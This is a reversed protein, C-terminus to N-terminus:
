AHPTSVAKNEVQKIAENVAGRLVSVPIWSYWEKHIKEVSVGETILRLVHAIRIRTGKIVLHGSAIQPNSELYKM